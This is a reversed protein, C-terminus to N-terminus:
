AVLPADPGLRISTLAIAERNSNFGVATRPSGDDAAATRAAIEAIRREAEFFESALGPVEPDDIHDARGTANNKFGIAWSIPTTVAVAIMAGAAKPVYRGLGFVVAFALLGLLFTSIYTEGAQELM